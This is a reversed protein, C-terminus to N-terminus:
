QLVTIQGYKTIGNTFSLQYLYTGQFVEGNIKGDWPIFEKKCQYIVEGYRNFIVLQSLSFFRINAIQWEDNIGDNNPTFVDPIVLTGDIEVKVTNSWSGANLTKNYEYIRFFHTLSLGDLQFSFNNLGGTKDILRWGTKGDVSHWVEHELEDNEWYKNINWSLDIADHSYTEIGKLFIVQQPNSLFIENCANIIKLRLIVPSSFQVPPLYIITNDNESVEVATENGFDDEIELYLLHNPKVPKESIYRIEILDENTYSVHVLEVYLSDNIVEVDFYDSRGFCITDTTTSSEEVSIQHMGEGFWNVLVQNTGQGHVIKGNTLVWNYVSGNTNKIRYMADHSDAICIKNDGNPTETILQVNIRVPFYSTDSNCGYQNISYVAVSASPNTAGWNIKVSDNSPNAVLEGGDVMWHTKQGRSETWYDVEEVFPCVSWSGDIPLKEANPLIRVSVPDFNVWCNGDTARLTYIVTEPAYFTGTPNVVTKVTDADRLYTEPLWQYIALSSGANGLSQISNACLQVDAGADPFVERWMEPHKERFFSTVFKPLRNVNSSILNLEVGCAVGKQNPNNIRGIKSQKGIVDYYSFYIKGDPGLQLDMGPYSYSDNKGLTILTDASNLISLAKSFSVDMQILYEKDFFYLLRSDPSFEKYGIYDGIMRHNYLEGTKFNFDCIVSQELSNGSLYFYFKDGDPSFKYGTSNGIDFYDNIVPNQNVGNEDVKYLYIRDRKIDQNTNENREILIWYYGNDCYGAITPGSHYNNHIKIKKNIVEGKGGASLTNIEAYYLTNDYGPSNNYYVEDYILIYWGEKKPYPLFIPNNEQYADKGILDEGHVLVEHNKNWVNRGDTYLVLNGDKDCITAKANKNGPFDSIVPGQPQFTIQTGNGFTWVSAEKQASLAKSFVVLFLFLITKFTRM